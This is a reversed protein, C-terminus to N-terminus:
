ARSSTSAAIRRAPAFVPNPIPNLMPCSSPWRVSQVRRRSRHIQWRVARAGRRSSEADHHRRREVADVGDGVVDGVDASRMCARRRARSSRDGSDVRRRRQRRARAELQHAAVRVARVADLEVLELAPQVEVGTRPPDRTSSRTGGLADAPSKITSSRSAYPWRTRTSSPPDDRARCRCAADGLRRGARLDNRTARGFGDAAGRTDRRQDALVAPVM